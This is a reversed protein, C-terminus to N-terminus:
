SRRDPLQKSPQKSPPAHRTDGKTKRKRSGSAVQTGLSTHSTHQDQKKSSGSQQITRPKSARSSENSGSINGPHYPVKPLDQSKQPALSVSGSESGLARSTNTSLSAKGERAVRKDHEDFEDDNDEDEDEDQDDDGEDGEDQDDDKDQGEDQGEGQGKDQGEDQGEDQGDEDDDDDDHDEHHNAVGRPINAPLRVSDVMAQRSSLYNADLVPTNVQLSTKFFDKLNTLIAPWSYFPIDYYPDHQTDERTPEVCKYLRPPASLDKFLAWTPKPNPWWAYCDFLLSVALGHKDVSEFIETRTEETAIKLTDVRDRVLNAFVLPWYEYHSDRELEFYDFDNAHQYSRLFGFDILKGVGKSVLMNLPKVDAHMYKKLSLQYLAYAVDMFWIFNFRAANIKEDKGYSAFSTGRECYTVVLEHGPTTYKTNCFKLVKKGVKLDPFRNEKYPCVDNSMFVFMRSAEKKFVEVLEKKLGIEAEYEARPLVIKVYNEPHLLVKLEHGQRCPMDDVADVVCKFSGNGVYAGGRLRKRLGSGPKSHSGGM